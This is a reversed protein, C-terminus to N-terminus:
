KDKIIDQFKQRRQERAERREAEEAEQRSQRNQRHNEITQSFKDSVTRPVDHFRESFWSGKSSITEPEPVASATPPPNKPVPKWHAEPELFIMAVRDVVFLGSTLFASEVVSFALEVYLRPGVGWHFSSLFEFVCSLLYLSMWRKKDGLTFPSDGGFRLIKREMDRYQCFVVVFVAVGVGILFHTFLENLLLM